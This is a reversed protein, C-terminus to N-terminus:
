PASTPAPETVGLISWNFFCQPSRPNAAAAERFSTMTLNQGSMCFYQRSGKEKKRQRDKAQDLKKELFLHISPHITPHISPHIIDLCM